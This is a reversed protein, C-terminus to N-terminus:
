TGPKQYDLIKKLQKHDLSPTRSTAIRDKDSVIDTKPKELLKQADPPLTLYTTEQQNVPNLAIVEARGFAWKPSTTLAIVVFLHVILSIWLAERLRSRALEDQLELLVVPTEHVDFETMSQFVDTSIGRDQPPASPIETLSM